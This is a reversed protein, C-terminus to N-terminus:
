TLAQIGTATSDTHVVIAKGGIPYIVGALCTVDVFAAMSKTKLSVTGAVTCIFANFDLETTDNPTVAVVKTYRIGDNYASSM